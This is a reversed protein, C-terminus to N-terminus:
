CCSSAAEDQVALEGKEVTITVSEAREKVDDEMVVAIGNVLTPAVGTELKALNFVLSTGCCSKQLKAKLCDSDNSVFLGELMTKAENTIKM